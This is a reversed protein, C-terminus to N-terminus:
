LKLRIKTKIHKQQQMSPLLAVNTHAVDCFITKLHLIRKVELDQLEKYTDIAKTEWGERKEQVL